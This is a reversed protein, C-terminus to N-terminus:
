PCERGAVQQTPCLCSRVRSASGISIRSFARLATRLSDPWTGPSLALAHMRLECGCCAGNHRSSNSLACAHLCVHQVGEEHGGPHVRDDDVGDPRASAPGGHEPAAARSWGCVVGGEGAQKAKISILSCRPQWHLLAPWVTIVLLHRLRLSSLERSGHVGVVCLVGRDSPCSIVSAHSSM